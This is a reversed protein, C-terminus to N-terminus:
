RHRAQAVLHSVAQETASGAALAAEVGQRDGDARNQSMKWKGTLSRVAIEVGVVAQLQAAIFDEPADELTWPRSQAAEHRATLDTLLRRLWAPDDVVTLPGRAEAVAYNWTPVAKGHEAKSPYWNPSIYAQPGQFLALAEVEPRYHKWQPNARALHGRLVGYPADPRPAPDHLVPVPNAEMGEPGFTVLLALPHHAMFDQLVPLRAEKFLSPLYM